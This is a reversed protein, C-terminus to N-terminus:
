GRRNFVTPSWERKAEVGCEAEVEFVFTGGSEKLRIRKGSTVNEIYSGGVEQSLVVRNGAKVVAMASALPKTANTVHFEMSCKNGKEKGDVPCFGIDKRGFYELEEGNAARFKVGPLKPKMPVEPMWEVPWCSAGAGSDLTIQFKSKKGGAEVAMVDVAEVHGVNWVTGIEVVEEGVEEQVANVSRSRCEWAKHGTKGCTYCTGQYGKGKGKAGVDNGGKVGKGAGKDPGKGKGKSKGGGKNQRDSPCERSAHGWGQCNFCQSHNGIADVGMEYEQEHEDWGVEGIEMPVPGGRSSIKNSVWTIIKQKLKEYDENVEDITQYVMDQVDAPCLEMLAAMKWLAPVAPYDKAMRTWRDEWEVIHSILNGIDQSPKPHMAERHIRLVRALTRRNYHRYLRHWAAIGDQDSVNRIMMKAEGETTMVLVEYLEKALKELGIKDAAGPDMARVKDTTMDDTMSEIGRLGHLLEPCESGLIVSFDFSWEKWEQEGRSFKSLRSFSKHSVKRGGGGGGAGHGQGQGTLAALLAKFQEESLMVAM